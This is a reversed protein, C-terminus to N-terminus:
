RSGRLRITQVVSFFTTGVLLVNGFLLTQDLRWGQFVFILSCLLAIEAFVIDHYRALAPHWLALSCLTAGAFYLFIGLLSAWNFVFSAFTLDINVM